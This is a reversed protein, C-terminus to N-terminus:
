NRKRSKNYEEQRPVIVKKTETWAMVRWTPYGDNTTRWKIRDDYNTYDKGM